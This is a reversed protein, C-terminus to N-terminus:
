LYLIDHYSPDIRAELEERSTQNFFVSNQKEIFSNSEFSDKM